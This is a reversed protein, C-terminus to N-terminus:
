RSENDEEKLIRPHYVASRGTDLWQVRVSWQDSNTVKGLGKPGLADTHKVITGVKM